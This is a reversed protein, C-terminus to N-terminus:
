TVWYFDNGIRRILKLSETHTYIVSRAITNGSLYCYNYSEDSLWDDHRADLGKENFALRCEESVDACWWGGAKLEEATLPEPEGKCTM